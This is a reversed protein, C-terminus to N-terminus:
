MTLRRMAIRERLEIIAILVRELLRRAKKDEVSLTATGNQTTVTFSM